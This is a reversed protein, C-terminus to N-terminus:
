YRGLASYIAATDNAVHQWTRLYDTRLTADMAQSATDLMALRLGDEDLPDVLAATEDVFEEMSTGSSTIVSCGSAMAEAVPLGFGEYLSPYVLAGASGYLMHLTEDPVYNLYVALGEGCLASLERHEDDSKWGKSGVVVLPWDVAREARLRRFASFLRLLNKRPEITGVSLFFRRYRLGLSDMIKRCEAESYPRCRPDPALHIATIRDAPVSLDNIIETKVLRSDTVIHAGESVARMIGRECMEVTQRRHFEPFKLVSLDHLTAVKPGDFPPLIFNPSHYVHTERYRSLRHKSLAATLKVHLVSAVYSRSAVRQMSRRMSLLTGAQAERGVESASADVDAPNLQNLIKQDLFHADAMLKLESVLQERLLAAALQRVYQGIGTLTGLLPLAGLIVSAKEVDHLQSDATVFFQQELLKM